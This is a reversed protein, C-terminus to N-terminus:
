DFLAPSSSVIFDLFIFSKVEKLVSDKLPLFFSHQIAECLFVILSVSIGHAFRWSVGM